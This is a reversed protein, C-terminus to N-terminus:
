YAHKVVSPKLFLTAKFEAHIASTDHLLYAGWVNGM